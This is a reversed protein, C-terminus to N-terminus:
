VFDNKYSVKEVDSVNENTALTNLFAYAYVVKNIIKVNNPYTQFKKKILMNLCVYLERSALLARVFACM